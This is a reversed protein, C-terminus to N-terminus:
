LTEKYAQVALQVTAYESLIQAMLPLAPGTCSNRGITEVSQCLQFLSVAGICSSLSKLAHATQELALADDQKLATQIAGIREPADDLFGDCVEKLFSSDTSIGDLIRADLTPLNDTPRPALTETPLTIKDAATETVTKPRRELPCQQLVAALDRRRVPKRIYDNMGASLCDLRDGQMAHATMAVIYPQEIHPASRIAQTAELGDMEPMQVDMLVLDYPQRQLAMVVEKGTQAVDAQYGYTELMQLAVKQNLLIDEALLIRLPKQAGLTADLALASRTTNRANDDPHCEGTNESRAAAADPSLLQILANYFQSRKAPKQLRKTLNDLLCLSKSPATTRAQLLILPVTSYHPFNRIQAALRASELDPLPESIVVADFRVDPRFLKVLAAETSAAVEVQLNWSRAQLTLSRRSTENSDVILLHKDDLSIQGRTRQCLRTQASENQWPARYAALRISFRFTSGRGVESVVDIEGGMLAILQQSIALGLGTGGYRRTTSTDVQSFPQFLHSMKKKAIGIGTDKVLFQLEYDPQTAEPQTSNKSLTAKTVPSVKVQLSVEGERTFKISNSVLNSLVQRLRTADGTFCTPVGPEIPEVISTLSLGKEEAQNAFLTLVQEICEYLDLRGVELELNHSEVKSFDLIDNIVALLTSGGTQIVNVLDRQQPDLSTGDLVETMGLMANMPTRIEHSMMALFSSKARNASEAAETASKLSGNIRQQELKELTLRQELQKQQTIDFAVGGVYKQGVGDTFPFKNVQWYRSVGDPTPVVEVLSQPQNTLLVTADNKRVEKAVEESAFYFDDKGILEGSQLNFGQELPQNVYTFCGQPDKMFVMASSNDMFARFRTESDRLQKEVQRQQVLQGVPVSIADIIEVLQPDQPRAEDSFFLLVALTREEAILPIGFAARLGCDAVEKVRVFVEDTVVSVDSHWEWQGSTWVRGPIGEQLAFVVTKSFQSFDNFSAVLGGTQAVSDTEHFTTQNILRNTQLDLQWAEGYSWKCQQCITQVVIGLASELDQASKLKLILNKLLQFSDITPQM